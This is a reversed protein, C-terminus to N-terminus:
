AAHLLSGLLAIYGQYASVLEDEDLHEDVAHARGIDGAGYIVTPLGREGASTAGNTCYPALYLSSELGAVALGRQARRVIEDDVAMAWAAHFDDVVLALGTYTRFEVRHFAVDLGETGRLAEGDQGLVSERTEGRVLRRDFRATCGDPVMSTGPYPSSVIEVLESVGSGLLEDQVLPIARVRAVADLMRYAANVGLEPRSSHAPVGRATLVVGARGKHGIGLRLGTPECIVVMDPRHRALIVDLALGEIMEEGVSASVVLTGVLGQRKLAAGALVAASLSGKIDVAGRGWIAGQRTVGSFPPESWLDPSTAPVVDLHADVLVRPGAGDGLMLGVVSGMDDREIRDYGLMAMEAEVLDAAHREDGSLSPRRVLERCFALVEAEYSTQM